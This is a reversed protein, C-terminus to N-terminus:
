YIYRLAAFILAANDLFGMIEGGAMLNIPDRCQDHLVAVIM